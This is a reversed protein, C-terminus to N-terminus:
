GRRLEDLVAVGARVLSGIESGRERETIEIERLAEKTRNPPRWAYALGYIDILRDCLKLRQERNLQDIELVELGGVVDKYGPYNIFFSPTTAYLFYCHLYHKSESTIRRLNQFAKDRHKYYAFSHAAEAEDFLICIGRYGIYRVLHAIQGLLMLATDESIQYTVDLSRMVRASLRDGYLYKLIMNRKQADPRIINQADYYAALVGKVGEPLEKYVIDKVRERPLNRMSDLWRELISEIAPGTSNERTRIGKMIESYVRMFNHLPCDTPSLTVESVVFDVQFAKERLLRLSHTKGCGYNGNLFRVQSNGTAVRDLDTHVASLLPERGVSYEGVNQAAPVGRRLSTIIKLAEQRKLTKDSDRESGSDCLPIGKKQLLTHLEQFQAISLSIGEFDRKDFCGRKKAHAVMEKIDIRQTM